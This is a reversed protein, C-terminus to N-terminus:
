KLRIPLAEPEEATKRVVGHVLADIEHLYALRRRQHTIQYRMWIARIHCKSLILHLAKWFTFSDDSSSWQVCSQEQHVNSVRANWELVVVCSFVFCFMCVHMGTRCRKVQSQSCTESIVQNKSGAEQWAARIRRCLSHLISQLFRM